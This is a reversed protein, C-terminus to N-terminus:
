KLLEPNSNIVEKLYQLNEIDELCTRMDEIELDNHEMVRMLKLPSFYRGGKKTLMGKTSEYYWLALGAYYPDVNLRECFENFKNNVAFFDKSSWKQDYERLFKLSHDNNPIFGLAVGCSNLWFLAKTHTFGWIKYPHKFRITKKVATVENHSAIEALLSKEKDQDGAIEQLYEANIGRSQFVTDANRLMLYINELEAEVKKIARDKGKINPEDAEYEADRFCQTAYKVWDDELAERFLLGFDDLLDYVYNVEAENRNGGLLLAKCFHSWMDEDSGVVPPKPYNKEIIEVLDTFRNPIHM